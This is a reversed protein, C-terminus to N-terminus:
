LNKYVMSKALTECADVRPDSIAALEVNDFMSYHKLHKHDAVGGAGVCGYRLKKM